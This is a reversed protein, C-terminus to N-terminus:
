ARALGATMRKVRWARAALLLRLAAQSFGDRGRVFLNAGALRCGRRVKTAYALRGYYMRELGDKIADEIPRNFMLNFYAAHRRVHGDKIGPISVFGAKKDRFMVLMGIIQGQLVAAYVVVGDGLCAKLKAFFEARYPFPRGNLRRHHSDAIQHLEGAVSSPDEVESIVVGARRGRSRENPISKAARPHSKRLERRYDAFSDWQIDLYCVPLEPSCLYGRSALVESVVREGAPIERFCLTCRDREAEHEIRALLAEFLRSRVADPLGARFLVGARWCLLGGCTMAPLVRVGFWPLLGRLRGFLVRDLGPKRGDPREVRWVLAAQLRSDERATLYRFQPAALSTEEILRLGAHNAFIGGGELEDWEGPHIGAISEVLSIETM